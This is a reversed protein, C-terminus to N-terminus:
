NGNSSEEPQPRLGDVLLAAFQRGIEEAGQRGEPRFWKVTWNLAGLVAMAAVHPDIERLSGEETGRRILDRYASEYRDRRPQIQSRWEHDLAEIELHALSGPTKENLLEIHGVILAELQRDVPQGSAAIRDALELLGALADEQCFALLAQKNEFYYYLNGVHMDLEAAIERMGAAHLGNRRFVRAAGELIQRKREIARDTPADTARAATQVM